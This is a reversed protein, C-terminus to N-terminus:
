NLKIKFYIFSPFPISHLSNLEECNLYISLLGVIEQSYWLVTALVKWASTLVCFRTMIKNQSAPTSPHKRTAQMTGRRVYVPTIRPPSSTVHKCDMSQVKSEPELSAAVLVDRRCNFDQFLPTRIKLICVSFVPPHKLAIPRRLM